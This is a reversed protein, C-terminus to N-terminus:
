RSVITIIGSAPHRGRSAVAPLNGCGGPYRFLGRKASAESHPPIGYSQPKRYQRDHPKADPLAIQCISQGWVPIPSNTYGHQSLKGAQRDRHLMRTPRLKRSNHVRSISSWSRTPFRLAVQSTALHEVPRRYSCSHMSSM